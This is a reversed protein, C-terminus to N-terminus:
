GLAGRAQLGCGTASQQHTRLNCIWAFRKGCQDCSFPKEGTHVRQHKKLNGAESFRKGCTVCRFPKEGTHVREHADLNSLGSFAKGCVRCIYSRKRRENPTTMSAQSKCTLLGARHHAAIAAEISSFAETAGRDPLASRPALTSSMTRRTSGIGSITTKNTSEPNSIAATTSSMAARASPISLHPQSVRTSDRHLLQAQASRKIALARSWPPQSSPAQIRLPISVSTGASFSCVFVTPQTITM